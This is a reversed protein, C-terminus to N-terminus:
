LVGGFMGARATVALGAAVYAADRRACAVATAQEWARWWRVIREMM